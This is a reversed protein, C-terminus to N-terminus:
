TLLLLSYNSGKGIPTLMHQRSPAPILILISFVCLGLHFEVFINKHQVFRLFLLKSWALICFGIHAPKDDKIESKREKLLHGAVLNEEDLIQCSEKFYRSHAKEVLIDEDTILSNKLHKTVDEANKGYALVM